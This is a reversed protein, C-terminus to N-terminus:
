TGEAEGKQFAWTHIVAPVVQALGSASAPSREGPFHPGAMGARHCGIFRCPSLSVRTYERTVVCWGTCAATLEQDCHVHARRCGATPASTDVGVHLDQGCADAPWAAGPFDHVYLGDRLSGPALEPDGGRRRQGVRPSSTLCLPPGAQEPPGGLQGSQEPRQGRTGASSLAAGPGPSRPPAEATGLSLLPGKM